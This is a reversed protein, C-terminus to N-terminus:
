LPLANPEYLLFESDKCVMPKVAKDYGVAAGSLAAVSEKGGKRSPSHNAQNSSVVMMACIEQTFSCNKEWMVEM